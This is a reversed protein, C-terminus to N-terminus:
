PCGQAFSGLFCIFDNVNLLPPSASRDCNAGTDGAAFESQFCVFDAVNLIPAVTSHDCTAYCIRKVFQGATAVDLNVWGVNEGWAYGRFRSAVLDFRAPQAPSAMAGGSFNIWGINEGWAYGSLTGDPAVNVGFDTGAANTYAVGNAPSGNGVNIWGLNECWIFGALCTARDRVGQLAGNADRWNMWGGNEQWSWKGVDDIDSQALAPAAVGILGLAALLVFRM